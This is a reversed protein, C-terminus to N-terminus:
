KQNAQHLNHFKEMTIKQIEGTKKNRITIFTDKEVCKGSKPMGFLVILSGKWYGGKTCIDIYEYGSSTRALRTQLHSQPDFFNKGLNFSFDIITESSLMHRVKEVVDSANESSINSMKMYAIAKRMVVDLNRIRIWPAINHELWEDDYQSLLQKTNYLSTILEENFKEGLGKIQVLQIIQEKSPPENYKIAHQQAIEFLEKVNPNTFYDPKTTKLFLPNNLIYHYFIQEQYSTVSM